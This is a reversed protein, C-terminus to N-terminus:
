IYDFRKSITFNKNVTASILFLFSQSCKFFSKNEFINQYKPSLIEEPSKDLTQWVENLHFFIFFVFLFM